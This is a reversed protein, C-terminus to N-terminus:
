EEEKSKEILEDAKMVLFACMNAQGEAYEMSGYKTTDLTKDENAKYMRVRDGYLALCAMYESMLLCKIENALDLQKDNEKKIEENKM